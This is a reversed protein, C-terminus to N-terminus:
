RSFSLIELIKLVFLWWYTQYGSVAQFCVQADFTTRRKYDFSGLMCIDIILDTTRTVIKAGKLIKM